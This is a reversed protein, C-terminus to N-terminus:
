SKVSPFIYGSFEDKLNPNYSELLSYGYRGMGKEPFVERPIKFPPVAARQGLL